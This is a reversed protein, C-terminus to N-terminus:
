VPKLHQVMLQVSQRGRYENVDLRYAVQVRQAGDNPWVEPDVNFWIADIAQEPADIPALVLKLHHQGVIRQNLVVFEGDFLPEAFQQGWPGADRLLHALELSLDNPSLEGDSLLKAQLADDSVTKRVQECFAADFAQYDSAAITLGAAMAHGGFKRILGPHQADVAALVDRIHVGEISRASGKIEGEDGDAFMIVPRHLSEKVRSALIGIVGQHWDAQYLTLAEPVGETPLDLAELQGMAEARMGQEIARRDHNLQNLTQALPLAEDIHRALLCEIGVSMDDLRGAANLRPGATFGLDSAVLRHPERGAVQLLAAIGPSAKGARMRQLGAQVLIRNTHDLPVVDAVTGLAAFDLLPALSPELFGRESFWNQERLLTRLAMMVYFIVGVGALSKCPFLCGTQHPNVVVNAEPLVEGPLHHDTILTKIGTENAAAVGDISAIGNDVTVIVDPKGGEVIRELLGRSLGYGDAFRSPVRYSLKSEGDRGWFSRLATIALATSTAGDADFDGVIMIHQGCRMADYLLEAAASAGLLQNFHPLKNLRLDLEDQHRVGRAAYVRALLPHLDPSQFGLAAQPRRVIQLDTM